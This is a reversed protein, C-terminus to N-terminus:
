GLSAGTHEIVFMIAAVAACGALFYAFRKPLEGVAPADEENSFFSGLTVIALSMLALLAVHVLLDNV